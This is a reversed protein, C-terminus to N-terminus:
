VFRDKQTNSTGSQSNPILSRGNMRSRQGSPTDDANYNWATRTELTEGNMNHVTQEEGRGIRKFVTSRRNAQRKTTPQNDRQNPQKLSQSNEQKPKGQNQNNRNNNQNRSIKNSNHDNQNPEKNRNSRENKDSNDDDKTEVKTENKIKTRSLLNRTLGHETGNYDDENLFDSSNEYYAYYDEESGEDDIDNNLTLNTDSTINELQNLNDSVKSSKDNDLDQGNVQDCREIQGFADKVTSQEEINFPNELVLDRADILEPQMERYIKANFFNEWKLLTADRRSEEDIEDVQKTTSKLHSKQTEADNLGFFNQIKTFELNSTDYTKSFGANTEESVSYADADDNPNVLLVSNIFTLLILYKLDM